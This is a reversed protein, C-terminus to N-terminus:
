AEEWCQKIEEQEVEQKDWEAEHWFMYIGFENKLNLGVGRSMDLFPPNGWNRIKRQIKIDFIWEYGGDVLIDM